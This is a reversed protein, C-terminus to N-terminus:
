FIKEKETSNSFSSVWIQLLKQGIRQIKYTYSNKTLDFIKSIMFTTKSGIFRVNPSMSASWQGPVIEPKVLSVLNIKMIITKSAFDRVFTALINPM